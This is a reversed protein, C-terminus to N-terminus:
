SYQLVNQELLFQQSEKLNNFVYPTVVEFKKFDINDGQPVAFCLMGATVAAIVGNLSDEVAICNQPSMNIQQAAFQYLDPAPKGKKVHDVSCRTLIPDLWSQNELTAVIIDISSNSAIACSLENKLVSLVLEQAGICPITEIKLYNKVREHLEDVLASQELHELQYAQRIAAILEDSALGLFPAHIVSDYQRSHYKLLDKESMGWLRETDVLTGDMDFIIAKIQSWDQQQMM